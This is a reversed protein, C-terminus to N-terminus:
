FDPINMLVLVVSDYKVPFKQSVRLRFWALRIHWNHIEVDPISLFPRKLTMLHEFQLWSSCMNNAIMFVVSQLLGLFSPVLSHKLIARGM